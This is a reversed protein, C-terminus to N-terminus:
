LGFTAASLAASQWDFAHSTPLTHPLCRWGIALAAIGLPINIAFLYPWTGVTLIAAAVTPGVAASVAVVMANIGIGRGLLDRPYIYRVLAMNVSMIGAAGFGQLIRALTLLLLTHALACFLSRIPKVFSSACAAREGTELGLREIM